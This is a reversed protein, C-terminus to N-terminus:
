WGTPKANETAILIFAVVCPEKGRNAWSHNTKRQVIVDGASIKVEGEELEMWLDGSLIIGYDVTDTTHWRGQVGPEYKCIRFVSGNSLSTGLEWESPDDDSLKAPLSDTAWLEVKEFGARGAKGEIPNDWKVYSKGANNIGTVVRRVKM